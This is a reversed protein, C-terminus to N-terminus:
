IRIALIEAIFLVLFMGAEFVWSTDMPINIWQWFIIATVILAAINFGKLLKM